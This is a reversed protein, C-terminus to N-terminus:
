ADPDEKEVLVLETPRRLNWETWTFYPTGPHHESHGDGNREATSSRGQALYAFDDCMRPIFWWNNSM